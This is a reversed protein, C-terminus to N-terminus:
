EAATVPAEEKPKRVPKKRVKVSFDGNNVTLKASGGDKLGGFLLEEVFLSKIDECVRIIERGGFEFGSCKSLIEPIVDTSCTLKVKKAKLMEALKKLQKEAILQAMETDMSNFKIVATLRNRFEPSFTRKVAEDIGSTNLHDHQETFGISNKVDAAGCNSTMIIIVNRFDAKAGKSDTLVADDMIQLLTNFVDPDAKEIEDLLLVSYPNERIDKVLRGGEDYGVYGASSGILKN